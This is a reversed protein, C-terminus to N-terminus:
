LKRIYRIPPIIADVIDPITEGSATIEIFKRLAPFDEKKIKAYAEEPTM